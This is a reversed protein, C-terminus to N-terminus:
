AYSAAVGNLPSPRAEDALGEAYSEDSLREELSDDPVVGSPLPEDAFWWGHEKITRLRPDASLKAGLNNRPIRGGIVIGRAILVDHLMRLRMPRGHDQIAQMAAMVIEETTSAKPEEIAREEIEVQGAQSASVTAAIKRYTAIFQELERREDILAKLRDNAAQLIPNDTEM